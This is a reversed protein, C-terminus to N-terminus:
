YLMCRVPLLIDAEYLYAIKLYINSRYMKFNSTKDLTFCMCRASPTKLLNILKM